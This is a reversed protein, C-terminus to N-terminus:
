LLVNLFPATYNYLLHHVVRDRFNAAFVERKVADGTIFCVSRGVKYTRDRLEEYLRILNEELNFEFELQSRTNRKNKRADYYARFVDYLLPDEKM